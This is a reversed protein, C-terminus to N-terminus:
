LHMVRNTIIAAKLKIGIFLLTGYIDEDMTYAIRRLEPGSTIKLTEILNEIVLKSGIIKERFMNVLKNIKEIWERDLDKELNSFMNKNIESKKSMKSLFNLIFLHDEGKAM